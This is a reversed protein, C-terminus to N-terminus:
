MICLAFGWNQHIVFSMRFICVCYYKCVHLFLSGWPKQYLQIACGSLCCCIWSIHASLYSRSKLIRTFLLDFVPKWNLVQFSKVFKSFFAHLQTLFVPPLLVLAPVSPCVRQWLLHGLCRDAHDTSQLCDQTAVPWFNLDWIPQAVFLATQFTALTASTKRAQGSKIANSSPQWAPYLTGLQIYTNKSCFGTYPQNM